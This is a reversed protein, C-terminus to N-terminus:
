TIDHRKRLQWIGIAAIVLIGTPIALLLESTSAANKSNSTTSTTTSATTTTGNTPNFVTSVVARIILNGDPTGHQKAYASYEIWGEVTQNGVFWNRNSRPGTIDVGLGPKQGVPFEIAVYFDDGGGV